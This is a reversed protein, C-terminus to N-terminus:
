WGHQQFRRIRAAYAAVTATDKLWATAPKFRVCPTGDVASRYFRATPDFSRILAEDTM